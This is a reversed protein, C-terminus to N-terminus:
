CARHVQTTTNTFYASTYMMVAFVALAVMDWPMPIIGLPSVPLFNAFVFNTDGLYSIIIVGIIYVWIWATREIDLDHTRIVLFLPFGILMLMGGILTWPWSAWYFMLTAFVFGLGTIITPFPLKFPRPTSPSTKRLIPVSLAAAAYPVVSTISAILAVSPFNPILLQIIMTLTSAFILSLHPTGYRSHTKALPAWFLRDQSMAFPIRGQLLVWSGGCGATSITAGVTAIAALIPLGLAQSVNALPSSLNGIGSWDGASLGLGKWRIMGVFAFSIFSYIAVVIAMTLLMARPITRGPNKVEETPIVVAEFGLFAWFEFAMALTIGTWGYAMFPHFNRFDLFGLGVVAFLLLPIIKGTTTVVSYLGGWKVGVINIATFTWLAVVAILTGLPALTEGVALGPIYFQLYTVFIDIVAAVSIFASLFYGWGIVFGGTDGLALRPLSYPGGTKPFASGLEAYSIALLTTVAGTLIVALILAPGAVSGMVAPMAFVGSGIIGGVGLATLTLLGIERKLPAIPKKGL